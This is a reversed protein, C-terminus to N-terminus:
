SELFESYSKGARYSEIAQRIYPITDPPLRALPFWSLDSCREPEMNAIDGTWQTVAFFFDAREEDPCIRHMVHAFNVAANRPTVGAEEKAERFLADMARENSDVHGAVLSYKGDEYGTNHRRLMLIERGNNRLFMAYVSPILRSREKPCRKSESM